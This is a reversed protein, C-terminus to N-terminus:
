RFLVLTSSSTGTVHGGTAPDADRFWWQFWLSTGAQLPTGPPLGGALPYGVTCAGSADSVAVQGPGVLRALTGALCLRAPAGAWSVTSGGELAVLAYGVRGAPLATVSLAFQDQAILPSGQPSLTALQGSSNPVPMCTLTGQCKDLGADGDWDLSADLAIEDRDVVGNGDCDLPGLNRSWDVEELGRVAHAVDLLGDGDLDGVSFAWAGACPDALPRAGKLDGLLNEYWTIRDAFEAASLADLDGDLDLDVLRARVLGTAETELVSAPSFGGSPLGRRWHVEGGYLGVLLDQQGDGDIDGLDISRPQALGSFLALPPEFGAGVRRHLTLQGGWSAAALLDGDGDGDFDRVLVDSVGLIAQTLTRRPGFHGGGLNELWAVEHSWWAGTALDLDGDGDIDGLDMTWISVGAPDVPEVSGFAGGGQNRLLGVSGGAFVLEPLGDGDLDRALVRHMATRGQHLVEPAGFVGGGQNWCVALTRQVASTLAADLDGDGDLDALEVDSPGVFASALPTAADFTSQAWAHPLGTSLPLLLLLALPRAM